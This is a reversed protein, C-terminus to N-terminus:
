PETEWLCDWMATGAATKRGQARNSDTTKELQRQKTETWKEGATGWIYGWKERLALRFKEILAQAAIM